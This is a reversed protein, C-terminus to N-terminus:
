FEFAEWDKGIEHALVLRKEYSVLAQALSGVLQYCKGLLCHVQEQELLSSSAALFALYQRIAESYAARAFHCDGIWRAVAVRKLRLDELISSIATLTSTSTFPTITTTTTISTSTVTDIQGDQVGEPQQQKQQVGAISAEAVPIVAELMRAEKEYFGIAEEYQSMHFRTSAVNHAARVAQQCAELHERLADLHRSLQHRRSLSSSSSSSSLSSSTGATRRGYYGTDADYHESSIGNNNESFLGEAM